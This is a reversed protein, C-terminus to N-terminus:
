RHALTDDKLNLNDKLKNMLSKSDSLRVKKAILSKQNNVTAIEINLDQAIEPISKGMNLQYFIEMEKPTLKQLEDNRRKILIGYLFNEIYTQGQMVDDLIKLFNDTSYPSGKIVIGEIDMESIHNLITPEMLATMVLIKIEKRYQKVRRIVELGTMDRMQFDLLLIDPKLKKTSEIGAKGQFDASVLETNPGSSIELKLWEMHANNDEIISVRIGKAIM